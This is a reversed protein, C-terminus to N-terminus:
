TTLQKPYDKHNQPKIFSKSKVSIKDSYSYLIYKVHDKFQAMYESASILIDKLNQIDLIRYGDM